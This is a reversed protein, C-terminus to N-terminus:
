RKFRWARFPDLTMEMGEEPSRIDERWNGRVRM